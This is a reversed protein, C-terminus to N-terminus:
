QMAASRKLIIGGEGVIWVNAASCRVARLSNATGSSLKQWTAGDHHIIAGAEGVAWLQGACGTVAVLGAAPSSAVTWRTGDYHSVQANGVGWVDNRASGWLSAAYVSTNETQWAGGTYHGLVGSISSAVWIDDASSGWIASLAGGAGGTVPEFRWTGPATRVIGNGLGVALMKDGHGWVASLSPVFPANAVRTWQKGDFEAVAGSSGVAVVDDRATGWVSQYSPNGGGVPGSPRVAGSGDYAFIGASGAIWQEDDSAGWIASYTASREPVRDAIASSWSTGNFHLVTGLEGVAWVDRASSGWVAHLTRTTGSEVATWTSGDYHVIHGQSGVSWLDQESSGWIGLLQRDADGDLSQWTNGWDIHWVTDSYTRDPMWMSTPSNGWLDAGSQFSMERWYSGEYQYTRDGTVWVDDKAIAWLARHFSRGLDRRVDSWGAGDFHFVAGWDLDPIPFYRSGSAIWIDDPAVAQVAILHLATSPGRGADLTRGDFHLVTGDEGVFWVDRESTGSVGLLRATTNTIVPRWTKGDFHIITGSDGVAWVDTPASGWVAHL